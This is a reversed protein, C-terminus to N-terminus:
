SEAWVRCPMFSVASVTKVQHPLRPAVEGQPPELEQDSASMRATQLDASERSPAAVRVAGVAFSPRRQATPCPGAVAVLLWCRGWVALEGALHGIVDCRASGPM